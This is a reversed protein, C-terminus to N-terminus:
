VTKHHPIGQLPRFISTISPRIASSENFCANSSLIEEYEKRELMNEEFCQSSSSSTPASKTSSLQAAISDISKSLNLQSKATKPKNESIDQDLMFSNSPATSPTPHVQSSKTSLLHSALDNIKNMKSVFEGRAQESSSSVLDSRCAEENTRMQNEKKVEVFGGDFNTLMDNSYGFNLPKSISKDLSKDTQRRIGYMFANPQMLQAASHYISGSKPEANSSFSPLQDSTGPVYSSSVAPNYGEQAINEKSTKASLLLSALNNIKNKKSVFSMQDEKRAAGTPGQPAGEDIPISLQMRIHDVISIGRNGCPDYTKDAESSSLRPHSNSSSFESFDHPFTSKTSSPQENQPRIQDQSTGSNSTDSKSARLLAAIDNIGLKSGSELSENTDDAKEESSPVGALQSSVSGVLRGEKSGLEPNESKVLVNGESATQSLNASAGSVETAMMQLMHASGLLHMSNNGLFSAYNTTAQPPQLAVFSHSSYDLDAVDNAHTKRHGILASNQAFAKGCLECKYPKEGTHTRQHRRLDEKAGFSKNCIDCSFPREGTHIREHIRAYGRQSFSKQCFKCSFPKEGTHTREHQKLQSSSRCDRGCFRCNYNARNTSGKPRGRGRGQVTSSGEIFELLEQQQAVPLTKLKEFMEPTLGGDYGDLDPMGAEKLAELLAPSPEPRDEEGELGGLFFDLNPPKSAFPREGSHITEHKNRYSRQSFGRGCVKCKYPKEGTHIREHRRLDEKTCFAKECFGCSFPREGTHIREHIKLYGKQAFSKPCFRCCHPKEGTHTREHLLLHSGGSFTKDCFSCKYFKKETRTPTHRSSAVMSPLGDQNQHTKNRLPSAIDNKEQDTSFSDNQEFQPISLNSTDSDINQERTDQWPQSMENKTQPMETPLASVNRHLDKSYEPQKQFRSQGIDSKWLQYRYKRFWQRHKQLHSIYGGSSGRFQRRCYLCIHRIIRAM